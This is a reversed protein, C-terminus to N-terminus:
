SESELDGEMHVLQWIPLDQPKGNKAKVLSLLVGKKLICQSKHPSAGM